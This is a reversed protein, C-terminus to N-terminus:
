AKANLIEKMEEGSKRLAALEKDNLKIELVKEIGNKGVISPVSLNVDKIGYEGHLSASVPLITHEDRVICRAIRTCAMAIGYCTSGKKEIIKYASDRVDEYLKQMGADHDYYGRIECFENLPIGSVNTISWIPVESDGHEGMIMTHVNQPDVALHHSIGDKLRASDLVTGSGIVKNEPYGSIKIVEHTLIDVPNTVILLIGEFPTKKIESIVSGLIMRNKNVLDIRTEGPKQAVGATIIILSADGVNSYDGSYVKMSGSYALGNSIDMAEGEAKATNVDILVMESYLRSQMLSFAISAGVAGCGVVAVKRENMM